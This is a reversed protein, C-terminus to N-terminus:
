EDRPWVVLLRRVAEGTPFARTALQVGAGDPLTATRSPATAGGPSTDQGDSNAMAWRPLDGLPSTWSTPTGRRAHPPVHIHDGM